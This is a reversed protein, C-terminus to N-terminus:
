DCHDCRRGVTRVLRVGGPKERNNRAQRVYRWHDVVAPRELDGLAAPLMSTVKWLEAQDSKYRRLVAKLEPNGAEYV